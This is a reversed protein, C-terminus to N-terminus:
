PRRQGTVRRKKSAVGYHAHVDDPVRTARVRQGMDAPGLSWPPGALYRVVNAHGNKVAYRLLGPGDLRADLGYSRLAVTLLPMARWAAPDLACLRESQDVLAHPYYRHRAHPSRRRMEDAGLGYPPAALVALKRLLDRAAEQPDANEDAFVSPINALVPGCPVAGARPDLDDHTANWPEGALIELTRSCGTQAARWVLRHGLHRRTLCWPPAALATLFAPQDKAAFRAVIRGMARLRAPLGPRRKSSDWGIEGAWVRAADLVWVDRDHHANNIARAAGSVVERDSDDVMARVVETFHPYHDALLRYGAEGSREGSGGALRVVAEVLWRANARGARACLHTFCRPDCRQLTAQGISDLSFPTDAFVGMASVLFPAPATALMHLFRPGLLPHRELEELVEIKATNVATMAVNLAVRDGDEPVPLAPPVARVLAVAAPTEQTCVAWCLCASGRPDLALLLPVSGPLLLRAARTQPEGSCAPLQHEARLGGGAGAILRDVGERAPRSTRHLAVIATCGSFAAVLAWCDAHLM